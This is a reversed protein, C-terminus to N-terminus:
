VQTQHGISYDDSNPSVDLSTYKRKANGNPSFALKFNEIFGM